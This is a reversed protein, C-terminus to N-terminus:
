PSACLVPSEAPVLELPINVVFTTGQGRESRFDLTGGMLTVLRHAITLGLGSGEFPRTATSDSQVFADLISEARDGDIGVGTDEVEFGLVIRDEGLATAEVRVDVSGKPTFKIANDILKRLVLEISVAHGRVVLDEPGVYSWGYRLGKSRATHETRSRVPELIEAIAVPSVNQRHKERDLEALLLMDEVTSLMREGASTIMEVWEQATRNLDETGLCEALGLIGHLPTRMEHSITALFESKANSAQEAYKLADSVDRAHAASVSIDIFSGVIWRPGDPHPRVVTKQAVVDLRRGHADVVVTEEHIPEGALVSADSKEYREAIEPPAIDRVTRGILEHWPVDILECVARNAHVFRGSEDRVYVPSPIHDLLEREFDARTRLDKLYADRARAAAEAEARTERLRQRLRVVVGSALAGGLVVGVLLSPVSAQTWGATLLAPGATELCAFPSM